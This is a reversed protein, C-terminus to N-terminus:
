LALSKFNHVHSYYISRGARGSSPGYSGPYSSVEVMISCFGVAVSRERNTLWNSLQLHFFGRRSGGAVTIRRGEWTVGQCWRSLSPTCHLVLSPMWSWPSLSCHLYLLPLSNFTISMTQAYSHYPCSYTADCPTLPWLLNGFCPLLAVWLPLRNFRGKLFLFFVNM